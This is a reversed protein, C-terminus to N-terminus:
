SPENETWGAALSIAYPAGVVLGRAVVDQVAEHGEVLVLVLLDVGVESAGGVGHLDSEDHSGHVTREGVMALTMSVHWVDNDLLVESHAAQYSGLVRSRSLRPTITEKM